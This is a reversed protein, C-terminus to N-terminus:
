LQVALECVQEALVFRILQLENDSLCHIRTFMKLASYQACAVLLASRPLISQCAESSLIVTTGGCLSVLLSSGKM